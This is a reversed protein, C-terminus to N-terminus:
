DACTLYVDRGLPPTFSFLGDSVDDDLFSLSFFSIAAQREWGLAVALGPLVSEDIM